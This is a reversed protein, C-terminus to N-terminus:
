LLKANRGCIPCRFLRFGVVPKWFSPCWIRAIRSVDQRFRVFQHLFASGDFHRVIPSHLNALVRFEATQNLHWIRFSPANVSAACAAFYDPSQRLRPLSVFRNFHHVTQFLLHGLFRFNATHNSRWDRFIRAVQSVTGLFPKLPHLFSFQTFGIARPLHRNVL